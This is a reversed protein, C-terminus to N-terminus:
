RHQVHSEEERLITRIQTGVNEASPAGDVEEILGAIDLATRAMANRDDESLPEGMAIRAAGMQVVLLHHYLIKIADRWPFPPFRDKQRKGYDTDLRRPFLDSVELGVAEVIQELSCGAMCRLLIKGDAAERISLSPSRDAHAPCCAMWSGPGRSRVKDLRPILVEAPTLHSSNNGLQTKM